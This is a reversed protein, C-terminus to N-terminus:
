DKEFGIKLRDEILKLRENYEEPKLRKNRYEQVSSNRFEELEKQNKLGRIQKRVGPTVTSVDTGFYKKVVYSYAAEPKGRYKQTELLSLFETTMQLKQDTKSSSPFKGFRDDIAQLYQNVIKSTGKKDGTRAARVKRRRQEADILGYVSIKSKGDVPLDMVEKKLANLNDSSAIQSVYASLIESGTDSEESTLIKNLQNGQEFRLSTSAVDQLLMKQMEKIQDLKAPDENNMIQSIAQIRDRFVKDQNATQATKLNALNISAEKNVRDASEVRARGIRNIQEARKDRDFVDGFKDTLAFKAEDFRENSILGDIASLALEQRGKQLADTKANEPMVSNSILSSYRAWEDDFSLANKTVNASATNLAQNFGTEAYNKFMKRSDDFLKGRYANKTQTAEVQYYPLMDDDDEQKMRRDIAQSYYKDFLPVLDSGDEKAEAFAQNEADDAATRSDTSFQNQKLQRTTHQQAEAIRAFDQVDKGFSQFAEGASRADSTNEKQVPNRFETGVGPSYRPIM